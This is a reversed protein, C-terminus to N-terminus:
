RARGKRRSLNVGFQVSGKKNFLVQDRSLIIPSMYKEKKILLKKGCDQCTGVEDQVANESEAM